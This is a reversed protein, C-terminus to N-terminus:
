LSECEPAEPQDRDAMFDDTVGEQEEEPDNLYLIEVGMDRVLTLLKLAAGSPQHKGKEWGGVTSSSVNLYLAFTERSLGTSERIEKIEVASLPDIHLKLQQDLQQLSTASALGIEHLSAM